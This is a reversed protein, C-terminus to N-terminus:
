GWLDTEGALVRQHLRQLDAGPEAGFEEKAYRWADQYAALAEAIRGSLCLAIMLHGRFREDAPHNGSLRHLDPILDPARDASIRLDAEIRKAMASLRMDELYTVHKQRLYASTIDALPTGRWLALAGALVRSAREWDGAWAAARGAAIRDEFAFIDLDRRSIELSYGPRHTRLLRAEGALATRIRNVYNRITIQWSSPPRGDWTIEALAGPSVVDCRQLALAALMARHKPAGFHARNGAIEVRMPGLLEIQM